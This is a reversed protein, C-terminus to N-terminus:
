FSSTFILDRPTRSLDGRLMKGGSKPTHRSSRRGTQGRAKWCSKSSRSNLTSRRLAAPNLEIFQSLRNLVTADGCIPICSADRHLLADNCAAALDCRGEPWGDSKRCVKAPFPLFSFPHPRTPHVPLKQIWELVVVRVSDDLLHGCRSRRSSEVGSSHRWKGRNWERKDPKAGQGGRVEAQGSTGRRQGIYSCSFVLCQLHRAKLRRPVRRAVPHWSPLQTRHSKSVRPIADGGIRGEWM